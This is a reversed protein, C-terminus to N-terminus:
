YLSLDQFVDYVAEACRTILHICVENSRYAAKTSWRRLNSGSCDGNVKQLIGGTGQECLLAALGREGSSRHRDTRGQFVFLLRLCSTVPLGQVEGPPGAAPRLLDFFFADHAAAKAM